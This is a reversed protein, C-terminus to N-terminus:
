SAAWVQEAGVWTSVVPITSLRRPDVRFPDEALVVFDALYGPALRGKVDDEGTAHASGITYLALAEEVSIRQSGGLLDGDVSERTVCSQLALLPEFPGAGYDSSGAVPIGADLMTRHPFMNELRKPGYWERLKSGHFNVYGGFPVPIVNDRRIRQVMEADAMTCHEIRHEVDPRPNRAQAAEIADLLLSIALDGNAHGAVRLGADHVSRVVDSVEQESMVQIGHDDESDEFPVSTWCTRGAIAGDVTLKVGNFRLRHGTAETLGLARAQDLAEYWVLMNVRLSLRGLAAAEQYMTLGTARVSADGVSTIGAAHFRESVIDLGRLLDDTTPEPVTGASARNAAREYLVGNVRGAADRGYEGGSPPTSDDDIGALRLALSNLVAWHGAIQTIWIPHDTSLEDLDWRTLPRGGTTQAHDYRSGRIWGGPATAAIRESLAARLGAESGVVGPSLDVGLANGAAGSPHMHADNFGPVVTVDGLDVQEAGQFRDGLEGPEGVALIHEGRTAFASGTEGAMTHVTGARFIRVGEASTDNETM